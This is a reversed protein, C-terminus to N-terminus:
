ASDNSDLTKPLSFPFIKRQKPIIELLALQIFDVEITTILVRFVFSAFPSIIASKHRQFVNKFHCLFSKCQPCVDFKQTITKENFAQVVM